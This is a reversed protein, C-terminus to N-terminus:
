KEDKEEPVFVFGIYGGAYKDWFRYIWGGPVKTREMEEDIKETEHLKM